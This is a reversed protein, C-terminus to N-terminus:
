KVEFEMLMKKSMPDPVEAILVYKGPTLDARFYAKSGAPMNNVGGLFTVDKPAPEILGKPDVWNMWKNLADLDTNDYIKALNVDHGAFNEHVMQTKFFVSFVHEGPKVSDMISIGDESSVTINYDAEPPKIGSNEESVTFPIFMGMSSHFVGNSMKVYCEAIYDGPELYTTTEATQEPSLLGVGGLIVVDSFWKPLKGFEAMAEDNKGKNLFDMGSDFYPIVKQKITDMTKGEPYKEISFFHTQPSENMYKFTNWGSPITDPMDFNMNTTTVKIVAEPKETEMSSKEENKKDSKCSQLSLFTALTLFILFVPLQSTKAYDFRRM